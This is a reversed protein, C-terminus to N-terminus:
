LEEAAIEERAEEAAALDQEARSALALIVNFHKKLSGVGDMERLINGQIEDNQCNPDSRLHVLRIANEKFYDELIVNKFDKNSYLKKLSEGRKILNRAQEITLEITESESNSRM